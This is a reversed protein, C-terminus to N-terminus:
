FRMVWGREAGAWGGGGGKSKSWGKTVASERFLFWILTLHLKSASLDAKINVQTIKYRITYSFKINKETEQTVM